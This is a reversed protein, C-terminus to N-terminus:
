RTLYDRITDVAHSATPRLTELLARATASNMDMATGTRYLAQALPSAIAPRKALSSAFAAYPTVGGPVMAGAAHALAPLLSIYDTLSIVDRNGLRPMADDLATELFKLRSERANLAGIGPVAQELEEKAGRALAKRTETEAGKREGFAQRKLNAYIAKKMEQTDTPSLDQPTLVTQPSVQGAAFNAPSTVSTSTNRMFDELVNRTQALERTATPDKAYNTASDAGRRAIDVPSISGPAGAIRRDIEDNIGANITDIKDLGAKSLPIGEKLGTDLMEDLAGAFGGRGYAASQKLVTKTPKLVSEYLRKGGRIFSGGTNLLKRGAFEAAGQEAGRLLMNKIVDEPGAVGKLHAADGTIADYLERIGEGGAAGAGAAVAGTLNPFRTGLLSNAIKVPGGGVMSGVAGGITPANEIPHEVVDAIDSLVRKGVALPANVLTSRKVGLFTPETTQTPTPTAPKPTTAAPAANTSRFQEFESTLGSPERAAVHQAYLDDVRQKTLPASAEVSTVYNQTEPINPVHGGAADVRGPGANYAALALKENGNYRDLLQRLYKAGGRINQEPDLPDEVGLEKATAPMLQMVGLAGKSSQAEPNGGSEQNAVASLLEPRIGFEQAAQNLLRFTEFEDPLSRTAM